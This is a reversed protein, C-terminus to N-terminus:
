VSLGSSQKSCKSIVDLFVGCKNQALHPLLSYLPKQAPSSPEGTNSSLLLHIPIKATLGFGHGLVDQVRTTLM